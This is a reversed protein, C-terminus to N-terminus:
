SGSAPTPVVTILLQYSEQKSWLTTYLQDDNLVAQRVRDQWNEDLSLVEEFDILAQDPQGLAAYALGRDFYTGPNDANLGIAIDYAAVTQQYEGQVYSQRGKLWQEIETVMNIAIPDDVAQLPESMAQLLQNDHENNELDTYMGKVVSILPTAVKEPQDLEFFAIQEEPSLEQRFFERTKAEYGPLSVLEALKTLRVNRSPIEQFEQMAAQAQADIARQGGFYFFYGAVLALLVVLVGLIIALRRTWDVPMNTKIWAANFVQRYIQNRVHLVGQEARLLGVLRLRNQDLSREDEVIEKGQYVQRYLTLLQRLQSSALVSDRVFQLNTERRAEEALFLKEVLADVQGDDWHGNGTEVAALCLKQTLYPHGNTWYYIRNFIAESQDSYVASLGQQLIQADQRDFDRVAVAQGINFPTRTRDKILDSPTAVGLLVFTLRNYIPDTARANYTFRIAAFFDDSFDVSLTTDIEDIFVVVPGDMEELVVDRLFNTFRQVPGLASHEAWWAGADVSLKLQRKLHTVLGLYWEEVGVDTGVRTLDIIATSVGDQKLRQATRVMLSSKGMQRATLVYCFQGTKVLNLLEEDAPRKVYCRSSARLTGGAVFFDSANTDVISM